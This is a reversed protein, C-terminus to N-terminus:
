LGSSLSLHQGAWNLASLFPWFVPCMHTVGIILSCVDQQIRRPLRLNVAHNKWPQMVSARGGLIQCDSHSWGCKALLWTVRQWCPLRSWVSWYDAALLSIDSPGGQVRVQGKDSDFEKTPSVSSHGPVDWCLLCLARPIWWCVELPLEM